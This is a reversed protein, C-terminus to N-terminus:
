VQKLNSHGAIGVVLTAFLIPAIITKILQLFIKSLVSLNQAFVPFNLGIEIGIIMSVLIWTTLSKKNFAYLIVFAWAVWRSGILVKESFDVATYYHLLHLLTAISLLVLIIQIVRKQSLKRSKLRRSFRYKSPLKSFTRIGASCKSQRHSFV